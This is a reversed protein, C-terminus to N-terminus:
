LRIIKLSKLLNQLFLQLSTFHSICILLTGIDTCLYTYCIFGPNNQRTIRLSIFGSSFASSLVRIWYVLSSWLPACFSLVGNKYSYFYSFRTLAVRWAELCQIGAVLIYVLFQIQYHHHMITTSEILEFNLRINKLPNALTTNEPSLWDHTFHWM